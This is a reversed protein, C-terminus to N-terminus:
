TAKKRRREELGGKANVGEWDVLFQVVEQDVAM